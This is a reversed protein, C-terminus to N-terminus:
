PMDSGAPKAWDDPRTISAIAYSANVGRKIRAISHLVYRDYSDKAVGVWSRGDKKAKTKCLSHGDAGDGVAIGHFILCFVQRWDSINIIELPRFHRSTNEHGAPYNRYALWDGRSQQENGKGMTGARTFKFMERQTGPGKPGNHEPVLGRRMAIKLVGRVSAGGRIRPNAEEYTGLPSFYVAKSKDQTQKNWAIEACQVLNHCTCEHTSIGRTGDTPNTGGGQNTFRNSYDEPWTGYKDCMRAADDWDKEDIWYKTPFDVFGAAKFSEVTDEAEFGTYGTEINYKPDLIADNFSNPM